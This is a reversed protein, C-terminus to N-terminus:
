QRHKPFLDSIIYLDIRVFSFSSDSGLSSCLELIEIKDEIIRGKLPANLQLFM